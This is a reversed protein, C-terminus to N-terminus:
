EHVQAPNSLHETWESGNFSYNNPKGTVRPNCIDPEEAEEDEVIVISLYVHSKLRCKHTLDNDNDSQFGEIDSEFGNDLTAFNGHLYDLIERASYRM